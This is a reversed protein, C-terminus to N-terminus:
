RIRSIFDRYAGAHHEVTAAPGILKAYYDGDGGQIISALMKFGPKPCQVFVLRKRFFDVLAPGESAIGASKVRQEDGTALEEAHLVQCLPFVLVAAFILSIRHGQM